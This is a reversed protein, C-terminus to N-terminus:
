EERYRESEEATSRIADRVANTATASFTEETKSDRSLAHTDLDFHRLLNAANKIEVILKSELVKLVQQKESSYGTTEWWMKTKEVTKRIRKSIRAGEKILSTISKIKRSAEDRSVLRDDSEIWKKLIACESRLGRIVEKIRGKGM